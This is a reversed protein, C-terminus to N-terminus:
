VSCDDSEPPQMRTRSSMKLNVPTVSWSQLASSHARAFPIAVLAVNFRVLGPSGSHPEQTFDRLDSAVMPFVNLLFLLSSYSPDCPVTLSAM